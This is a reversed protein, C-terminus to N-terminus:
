SKSSTSASGGDAGIGGKHETDILRLTEFTPAHWTSKRLGSPVAETRAESPNKKM